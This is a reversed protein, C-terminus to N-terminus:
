GGDGSFGTSNFKGAITTIIGSPSVKRIDSGEDIFDAGGSIYLNGQGDFVASVPPFLGASRAPGGDGSEGHFGNGALVSLTGDRNLRVVVGDYSDVVVPNGGHDISIGGLINFPVSLAAKGDGNFVLDTGAFTTM